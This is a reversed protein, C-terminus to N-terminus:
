FRWPQFPFVHRRHCWACMTTEQLESIGARAIDFLISMALAMDPITTDM